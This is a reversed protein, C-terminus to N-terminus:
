TEAAIRPRPPVERTDVAPAAAVGDGTPWRVPAGRGCRGCRGRRRYHYALTAAGLAAGWLPWFLEPGVTTWDDAGFFGTVVLRVYMLGAETVFLAVLSAPVIAVAPPVRKGALPPLWRPFVEGWPRVLGLTLIAGGVAVTALAAGALWIGEAQGERLLEDSIGLPIGLAWAWRTAAYLCPVAVAVAVARRGWRAAAAPSTWGAAAATRGCAACADATRRQYAVASAAWLLGGVVCVFQNLVPWPVVVLYSVPPWGFPAGLLFIPTYAVAALVRYDPVILLLATALGWAVALPVPRPLRRGGPAVMALATAAGILGLAAILPGGIEPRAGEFWTAEAAEDHAGGFPFGAGGLVWFGGLAGYALSWVGALHGVWEPWRRRLGLGAREGNEAM